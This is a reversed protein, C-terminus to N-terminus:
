LIRNLEIWVEESAIVRLCLCSTSCLEFIYRINWIGYALLCRLELYEMALVSITLMWWASDITSTANWLPKSLVVKLRRRPDRWPPSVTSPESFFRKRWPPVLIECFTGIIGEFSVISSSILSPSWSEGLATISMLWDFDTITKTVRLCLCM